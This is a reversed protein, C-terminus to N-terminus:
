GPVVVVGVYDVPEGGQNAYSHPQDATMRATSGAPVGVSREGVSLHLEGSLVHILEHTGPAHAESDHREGPELHWRWLEAPAPADTGSLLRGTGGSPGRWLVTATGTVSIAPPEGGELLATLSLGLADSIRILTALNPNGRGQELAVVVGKSLGARTALTDMSWQRASRHVRINRALVAAPDTM